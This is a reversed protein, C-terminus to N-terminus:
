TTSTLVTPTTLLCQNVASYGQRMWQLCTERKHSAHTLFNFDSRKSISEFQHRRIIHLIYKRSRISRRATEGLPENIWLIGGVVVSAKRLLAKTGKEPGGGIGHRRAIGHISFVLCETSDVTGMAVAMSM